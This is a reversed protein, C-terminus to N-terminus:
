ATIILRRYLGLGIIRRGCARVIRVGIQGIVTWAINDPQEGTAGYRGGSQM